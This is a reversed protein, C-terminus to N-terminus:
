KRYPNKRNLQKRLAEVNNYAGPIDAYKRVLIDAASRESLAANKTLMVIGEKVMMEKIATLSRGNKPKYRPDNGSAYWLILNQLSTAASTKTNLTGVSGKLEDLMRIITQHDCLDKAQAATKGRLQRERVEFAKSIDNLLRDAVYLGFGGNNHNKILLHLISRRWTLHGFFRENAVRFFYLSFKLSRGIAKQGDETDLLPALDIALRRLADLTASCEKAVKELAASKRFTLFSRPQKLANIVKVLYPVIPGTEPNFVNSLLSSPEHPSLGLYYTRGSEVAAHIESTLAKGLKLLEDASLQNETM